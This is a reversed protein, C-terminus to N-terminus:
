GPTPPPQKTGHRRAPPAAPAPWDDTDPRGKAEAACIHCGHPDRAQYPCDATHGNRPRRAPRAPAPKPQGPARHGRPTFPLVQALNDSM